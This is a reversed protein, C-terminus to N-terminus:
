YKTGIVNLLVNSIRFLTSFTTSNSSLFWISECNFYCHWGIFIIQRGHELYSPTGESPDLRRARRGHKSNNHVFMNDSVALVHGDVNVTTSM